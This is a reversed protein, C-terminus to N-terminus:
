KLLKKYCIKEPTAESLISSLREETGTIIGSQQVLSLIM